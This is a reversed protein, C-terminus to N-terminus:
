HWRGVTTLLMNDLFIAVFVILVILKRSNRIDAFCKFCSFDRWREKLSNYKM